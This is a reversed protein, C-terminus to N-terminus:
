EGEAKKKRKRIKKTIAKIVFYLIILIALAVVMKEFGGIQQAVQEWYPGLLMGAFAYGGSWLVASFIVTTMFVVPKIELLGAAVSAYGRLYPLMRGIFIGWRGKQSVRDSIKKIREKSIPIWKPKHALIYEGFHYFLFFLISTGIFDGAISSLFVLPFSLVGISSLYGSFLIIIEIPVPNPVGIEQLFVLSFIALYGYQTIYQALEPPM